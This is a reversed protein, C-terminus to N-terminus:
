TKSGKKVGHTPRIRPSQKMDVTNRILGTKPKCAM